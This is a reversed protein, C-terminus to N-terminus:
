STPEARGNKFFFQAAFSATIFGLGIDKLSWYPNLGTNMKLLLMVADAIMGVCALAFGFRALPPWGVFKDNFVLLLAVPAIITNWAALFPFYVALFEPTFNM